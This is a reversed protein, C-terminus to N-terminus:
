WVLVTYRTRLAEEIEPKIMVREWKQTEIDFVVIVSKRDDYCLGIGIVYIKGDIFGAFTCVLPVPISPIPEVMHSRCDMCFANTTMNTVGGFVYIRSGVAVSSEPYYM